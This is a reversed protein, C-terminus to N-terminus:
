PGSVFSKLRINMRGRDQLRNAAHVILFVVQRGVPLGPLDGPIDIQCRKVEAFDPCGGQEITLLLDDQGAPKLIGALVKALGRQLKGLVYAVVGEGVGTQLDSLPFRPQEM